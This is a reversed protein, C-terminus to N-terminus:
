KRQTKVCNNKPAVQINSIPVDRKLKKFKNGKKLPLSKKYIGIIRLVITFDIHNNKPTNLADFKSKEEIIKIINLFRLNLFFFRKQLNLQKIFTISQIM